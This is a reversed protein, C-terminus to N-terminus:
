VSTLGVQVLLHTRADSRIWLTGGGRRWRHDLWRIEPGTPLSVHMPEFADPGADVLVLAAGEDLPCSQPDVDVSVVRWGNASEAAEGAVGAPFRVGTLVHGHRYATSRRPDPALAGGLATAISACTWEPPAGGLVALLSRLWSEDEMRCGAGSALM